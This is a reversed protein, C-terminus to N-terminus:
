YTCDTLNKVNFTKMAMDYIQDISLSVIEGEDNVAVASGVLYRMKEWGIEQIIAVQRKELFHSLEELFDIEIWEDNEALRENPIGNEGCIFGVMEEKKNRENFTIKKSMFELGCHACFDKFKEIDKVKFYNSRAMCCYNAM